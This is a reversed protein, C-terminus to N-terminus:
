LRVRTPRATIRKGVISACFDGDLNEFCADCIVLGAGNNSVDATDLTIRSVV